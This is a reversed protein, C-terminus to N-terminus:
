QRENHAGAEQIMMKKQRAIDKLKQMNAETSDLQSDSQISQGLKAQMKSGLDDEPTWLSTASVVGDTYKPLNRSQIQKLVQNSNYGRKGSSAYRSEALSGYSM